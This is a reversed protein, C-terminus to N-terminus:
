EDTEASLLFHLANLRFIRKISHPVAIFQLKGGRTKLEKRLMLLLGLFRADM